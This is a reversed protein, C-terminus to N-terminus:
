VTGAKLIAAGGAHLAPTTGGYGRGIILGNTSPTVNAVVIMESDIQIVDFKAIPDGTSVYVATITAVSGIGGASLTCPPVYAIPGVAPEPENEHAYRLRECMLQVHARPSSPRLSMPQVGVVKLRAGVLVGNLPIVIDEERVGPYAAAPYIIVEHIHKVEFGQELLLRSPRANSIRARVNSYRLSDARVSGAVADDLQQVREYINVRVNLGEM